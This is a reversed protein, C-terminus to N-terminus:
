VRFGLTLLTLGRVRPRPNVSAGMLTLSSSRLRLSPVSTFRPVRTSGLSQMGHTTMNPASAGKYYLVGFRLSNARLDRYVHRACQLLGARLAAGAAPAARVALAAGLQLAAGVALAAGAAPAAGLRWRM